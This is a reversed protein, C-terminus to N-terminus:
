FLFYFSQIQHHWMLLYCNEPLFYEQIFTKITTFEKHVTLTALKYTNKNYM